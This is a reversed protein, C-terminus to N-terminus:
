IASSSQSHPQALIHRFIFVDKFVGHYLGLIPTASESNNLEQEKGVEVERQECSKKHNTFPFDYYLRSKLCLIEPLSPM